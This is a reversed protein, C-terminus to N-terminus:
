TDKSTDRKRQSFVTLVAFAVSYVFYAFAGTHPSKDLMAREFVTVYYHLGISTAVIIQFMSKLIALRMAKRAERSKVVWLFHSAQVSSLPLPCFMPVRWCAVSYLSHALLFPSM